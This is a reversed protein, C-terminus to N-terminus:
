AIKYEPFGTKIYEKHFRDRIDIFVGAIFPDFHTGAESKIIAFAEDETFAEKYPRKSMLADYVDVIAVIRGQLPIETQKLGYPYGKGDWREHHSVASLRANNLLEINGTRQIIKEIIREGETTHTTMMKFEEETLAAPKNLIASSIAIKGVDHLRASSIFLDLNWKHIEGFYVDQRMMEEVLIKTFLTTREIHGGTNEDRSEIIDAMSYVIGNQAKMLEATHERILEGVHLHYKMRNLLVPKSFPKSVFDVAGLEIGYAENSPDSRSTLFMVPIDMFIDTAKLIRLAEFGNMGPMEIDLLILDPAVKKLMGFMKDASPLTIVRYHERLADNALALNTDSDDVVFILKQM